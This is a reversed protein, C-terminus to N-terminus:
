LTNLTEVLLYRMRDGQMIIVGTKLPIASLFGNTALSWIKMCNIASLMDGNQITPTSSRYPVTSLLRPALQILLTKKTTRM